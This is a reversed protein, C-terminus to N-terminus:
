DGAPILPARIVEFASFDSPARSGMSLISLLTARDPGIDYAVSADPDEFSASAHNYGIASDSQHPTAFGTRLTIRQPVGLQFRDGNARFAYDGSRVRFDTTSEIDIDTPHVVGRAKFLESEDTDAFIAPRIILAKFGGEFTTGHCFPCRNQTPQDYVKAIQNAKSGDTGYCHICRIVLGAQFDQIHWMLAFMANEGVTWLAQIHRQREQEVAWPQRDRVYYPQASVEPQKIPAPDLIPM